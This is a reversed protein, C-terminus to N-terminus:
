RYRENGVDLNIRILYLCPKGLLKRKEARYRGVQRNHPLSNTMEKNLEKFIQIRNENVLNCNEARFLSKM